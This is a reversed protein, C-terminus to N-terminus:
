ELRVRGQEQWGIQNALVVALNRAVSLV